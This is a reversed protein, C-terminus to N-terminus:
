RSSISTFATLVGLVTAGPWNTRASPSTRISGTAIPSPGCGALSPKLLNPIIDTLVSISSRVRTLPSAMALRPSLRAKHLPLPRDFLDTRSACMRRSVFHVERVADVGQEPTSENVGVSIQQPVPSARSSPQQLDTDSNALSVTSDAVALGISPSKTAVAPAVNEPPEYADSSSERGQELSSSSDSEGMVVDSADDSTAPQSEEDDGAIVHGVPVEAVATTTVQNDTSTPAELPSTAAKGTVAVERTPTPVKEGHDTSPSRFPRAAAAVDASASTIM